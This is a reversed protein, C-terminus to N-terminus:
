RAAALPRKCRYSGNNSNDYAFSTIYKYTYMMQFSVNVSTTPNM